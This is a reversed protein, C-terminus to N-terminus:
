FVIGASLRLGQLSLDGWSGEGNLINNLFNSTNHWQSFFYQYQYAATISVNYDQCVVTNWEVGLIGEVMMRGRDVSEKPDTFVNLATPTIKNKNKSEIRGFLYATNLDTIVRFTDFITYSLQIGFRPGVGFFNNKRKVKLNFSSNDVFVDQYHIIQTQNITAWLVGVYPSVSFCPFLEGVYAFDLVYENLSFDWRSKARAAQVFPSNSSIASVTTLGVSRITPDLSKAHARSSTQFNTWSVITKIPYSCPTIGAKVQLGSDWKPHHTKLRATTNNPDRNFPAGVTAFGLQDEQVSLYLYSISGDYHFDPFTSPCCTESAFLTSFILFFLPIFKM